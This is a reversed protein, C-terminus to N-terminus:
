ETQRLLRDREHALLAEERSAVYMSVSAAIAEDFALNLALVERLRLPQELAEDLYELTVTRLLQYDRILETLSWGNQWRQAGHRSAPSRHGNTKEPSAEALSQALARLFNPLDDLLVAHHARRAEPQEAVARHAWREILIGVDRQILG